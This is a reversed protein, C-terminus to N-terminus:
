KTFLKRTFKGLEQDNPYNKIDEKSVIYAYDKMIEEESVGFMKSMESLSMFKYDTQEMDGYEIIVHFTPFGYNWGGPFYYVSIPEESVPTLSKAIVGRGRELDLPWATINGEHDKGTIVM